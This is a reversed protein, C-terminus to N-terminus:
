LEEEIYKRRIHKVDCLPVCCVEPFEIAVTGEVIFPMYPLNLMKQFM